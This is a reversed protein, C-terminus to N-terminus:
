GKRDEMEEEKRREKEKDETEVAAAGNVTRLEGYNILTEHAVASLTIAAACIDGWEDALHNHRITVLGGKKYKM